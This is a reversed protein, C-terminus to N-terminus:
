SVPLFEITAGPRVARRAWGRRRPRELGGTSVRHSRGDWPRGPVRAKGTRAERAQKAPARCSRGAADAGLAAGGGGDGSM